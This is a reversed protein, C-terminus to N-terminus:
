HSRILQTDAEGAPPQAPKPPPPPISRGDALPELDRQAPGNMVKGYPDFRSGHCPCDWSREARNWAVICGLHPCTASCEHKDGHEDVYLAVRKLGRRVVKGHGPEIARELREAPLLRQALQVAVNVNERLFVKTASPIVQRSPDYLQAWPNDRDCALDALLQGAIAGHTMGNGSDGTAIFVRAASGPNRGIFALGDAPEQIQGSWRAVVAGVDPFRKRAWGELRMWRQEPAPAQGVKHDEGGVVLRDGDGALRVYHYPEATDWFLARTCTGRPIQLAIAYSRYAAQKTHMSLVDNVPTNTAVIVVNAIVLREGELRIRQTTEGGDVDVVRTRTIVRAGMRELARTLGALYALPQLEAQADFRLCPQTGFARPGHPELEVRVGARTAAELELELERLGAQRPRASYLYGPVRAFGCEIGEARVIAEIRDIAAMHSAAALQAAQPGHTHELAYYRDDLATSLHATTRGTEGSGVLGREVVVVSRGRQALEYATSLGAIGAGVVVVDCRDLTEASHGTGLLIQRDLFSPDSYWLSQSEGNTQMPDYM